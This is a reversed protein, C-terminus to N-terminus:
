NLNKIDHISKSIYTAVNEVIRRAIEDDALDRL